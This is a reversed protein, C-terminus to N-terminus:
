KTPIQALTVPRTEDIEDDSDLRLTSQASELNETAGPTRPALLCTSPRESWSSIRTVHNVEVVSRPNSCGLRSQPTRRSRQLVAMKMRMHIRHLLSIAHGRNEFSLMVFAERSNIDIHPYPCKRVLLSTPRSLVHVHQRSSPCKSVKMAHISRWSVQIWLRFTHQSVNRFMRDRSICVVYEWHEHLRERDPGFLFLNAVFSFSRRCCDIDSM